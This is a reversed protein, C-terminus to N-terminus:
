EKYAITIAGGVSFVFSDPDSTSGGTAAAGYIAGGAAGGLAATIGMAIPNVEGASGTLSENFSMGTFSPSTHVVIFETSEPVAFENKLVNEYFSFEYKPLVEAIKNGEIDLATIIPYFLYLPTEKSKVVYSRIVIVNGENRDHRVLIAPSKYAGFDVLKATEPNFYYTNGEFSSVSFIEVNLSVNELEVSSMQSYAETLDKVSHKQHVRTVSSCAALLIILAMSVILKM